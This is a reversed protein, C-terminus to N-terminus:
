AYVIERYQRNHSTCLIQGKIARRWCCICNRRAHPVRRAVAIWDNIAEAVEGHTFTLDERMFAQVPVRSWSGDQYTVDFCIAGTEQCRPQSRSVWVHDKPEEAQTMQSEVHDAAQCLTMLRNSMTEIKKQVLCNPSYLSYAWPL